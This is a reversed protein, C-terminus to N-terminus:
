AENPNRQASFQAITFILSIVFIVVGIAAAKGYQWNLFGERYLTIGLTVTSNGPGGKLIIWPLEFLKISGVTCLIAVIRIAFSIQPVVIYRAYQWKNAGDIMAAEGLEAPIQDINAMLYIVYFGLYAWTALILLSWFAIHPNGLWDISELWKWGIARAFTTIVGANPAYIFTGLMATVASPLVNALYYISRLKRTLGTKYNTCAFAIFFALPIQIVVSWFAWTFVHWLGALFEENSFLKIYNQLGIYTEPGMSSARLLSYRFTDVIPYYMFIGLMLFAPALLLTKFWFKSWDIKKRTVLPASINQATAM